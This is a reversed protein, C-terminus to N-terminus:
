SLRRASHNFRASRRLITGEKRQRAPFQRIGTGGSQKLEVNNFHASSELNTMFLAVDANSYAVGKMVVEKTTEQLSNLWVRDPLNRSVSDLLHVPGAQKSKLDWIVDIKTEVENKIRKFEKNKKEM